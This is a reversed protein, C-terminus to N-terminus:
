IVHLSDSRVAGGRIAKNRVEGEDRIKVRLADFSVVPYMPGLPRVQWGSIKETVADTVSNIVRVIGRHRVARGSLGPDRARDHRTRVDRHDPRRIGHCHGSATKTIARFTWACRDTKPLCPRAVEATAGTRRTMRARELVQVGLHHRLEADLAREIVAKSVARVAEATMRGNVFKDVLEQPISPLEGLGQPGSKSKRLM